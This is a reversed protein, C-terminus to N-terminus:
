SKFESIELEFLQSNLGDNDCVILAIIKENSSELITISEVKNIFDKNESRVPIISKIGNGQNSLDIIGLFSGLCRGDSIEDDTNEVSATFLLLSTDPIIACGSFGALINQISPLQFSHISYSLLPSLPDNLHNFFAEIPINININRGSINGRQLFYIYENDAALGEINLKKIGFDPIILLYKYFDFLSYQKVTFPPKIDILYANERTEKSGSGIVFLYDAGKYTIRSIAELDHKFKKRIRGESKFEIAEYLKIKKVLRFEKDLIFLYNSDDGVVFIYPDVFEIGSASPIESIPYSKITIIKM